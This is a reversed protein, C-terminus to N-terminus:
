YLLMTSPSPVFKEPYDASYTFFQPFLRWRVGDICNVIMGNVYADLFEPDQLLILWAAQFIERRCHTLLAKSAAKNVAERIKDQIRDPLQQPHPLSDAPDAFFPFGVQPLYTFHCGGGATPQVRESKPQNGFFICVPWAKNQGFPNLITENSWLMMAAVVRPLDQEPKSPDIRAMQIKTDEKLWADSTFVESYVWETPLTPNM